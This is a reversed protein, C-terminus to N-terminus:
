RYELLKKWNRPFGIHDFSISGAYENVLADLPVVLRSNWNEGHIYMLKLMLLQDFVRGTCKFDIKSPIRPMDTFLSYYLRSYHACRNRLVTICKMWSDLFPYSTNFITKAFAKKDDVLWDSYFHSLNGTSFFEIIVWIPFSGGYKLNHHRVVPTTSNTRLVTQISQLFKDHDHRNNYYGSELYALNGYKMAFYYALQTRLHLEIEEIISFILARLKRDFEYISYINEFTTESLFTDDPQKFPLLYATFRYYNVSQLFHLCKDEDTIILGRSKLIILQETITKPDKVAVPYDVTLCRKSM